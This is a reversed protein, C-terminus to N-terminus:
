VELFSYALKVALFRADAGPQFDSPRFTPTVTVEVRFPVEPSRLKVATACLLKQPDICSHIVLRKTEIVRGIAPQRDNAVVLTGLRITVHGPVDKGAYAIRNVNVFLLGKAGDFRNYASFAPVNPSPATLWGDGEIGTETSALKFPYGELKYVAQDSGDPARAVLPTQLTVGHVALVYDTNPRQRMTGDPELVDPTTTPGPGPAASHPDASWVLKISRNWFETLYIGNPDTFEEGLLTTSRGGTAQDVWDFPKTLNAAFRHSAQYEGNAAYTEATVNWALVAACVAVVAAAAALGQRPLRGLAVVVATAGVAIAILADEITGSPWHFIRNAFATMALGHAEYYPYNDLQYPVKVVLYLTFAGCALAWWWRTGRRAILLATGAFLIPDVYILNREVARSAFTTSLYAGKIAAYWGFAAVTAAAVTTFAARAPDPPSGRRPVLAALGAIVPLVGLGIALAGAAWMGYSWIRDKYGTTVTEWEQSAHAIGSNVLMVFGLLLAIAGAWDWPSWSARWARVRQTRWGVVALTVVLAGVLSVLESRVALAVVASATAAAFTRFAPRLAARTLLWLTVTSALYALPEETIMPSYSLAPAAVAGVAAAIAWRQSLVSRAIGYAPFLTATMALTGIYKVTDFAVKTPHLWWAPATLYPYLSTFHYAVERRAPHGTDAIARSIQTMELEDTFLSPTERRWAQWVYYAAFAFYAALLPLLADSRAWAPTRLRALNM